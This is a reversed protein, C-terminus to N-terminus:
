KRRTGSLARILGIASGVACALHDLFLIGASQVTQWMGRHRFFYLLFPGNITFYAVSFALLLWRLDPSLLSGGAALLILVSLFVSYIFTPYVNVFGHRLSQTLHGVQGAIRVFGDSRQLDNQLLSRVTHRKLHEVEFESELRIRLDHRAMRKGLELDEGGYTMMMTQDFGGAHRFSEKRIASAAGFIWDIHRSSHLYSYRIWMNKYQSAANQHRHEVSYVGVVADITSDKFHCLAKELAATRPVTDSDFFVLIDGRAHQAGLNRCYNVSRPEEGRLLTVGSERAVDGTEDTSGDDVVIVESPPFTQNKLAELCERLEASRNHVPIIVSVTHSIRGTDM